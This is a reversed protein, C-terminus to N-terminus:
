IIFNLATNVALTVDARFIDTQQYQPFVYAVSDNRDEVNGDDDMFGVKQKKELMAAARHSKTGAGNEWQFGVYFEGVAGPCTGNRRADYSANVFCNAMTRKCVNLTQPIAADYASIFSELSLGESKTAAGLAPKLAPWIKPLYPSHCPYPSHCSVRVQALYAFAWCKRGLTAPSEIREGAKRPMAYYDVQFVVWTYWWSSKTTDTVNLWAVTEKAVTTNLCTSESILSVLLNNMYIAQNPWDGEATVNGTPCGGLSACIKRRRYILNADSASCSADAGAGAGAGADASSLVLFLVWARM